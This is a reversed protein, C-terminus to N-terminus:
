YLIFLGTVQLPRPWFRWRNGGLGERRQSSRGGELPNLPVPPPQHASRLSLRPILAAAGRTTGGGGAVLARGSFLYPGSVLSDPVPLRSLAQGERGPEALTFGTFSGWPRGLRRSELRPFPGLGHSEAAREAQSGM